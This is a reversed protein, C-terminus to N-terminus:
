IKKKKEAHILDLSLIPHKTAGLLFGLWRTPPSDKGRTTFEQHDQLIRGLVGAWERGLEM